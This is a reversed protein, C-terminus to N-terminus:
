KNTQQNNIVSITPDDRVWASYMQSFPTPLRTLIRWPVFPSSNSSTTTLNHVIKIISNVKLSWVNTSLAFSSFSLQKWHQTCLLYSEDDVKSMSPLCSPDFDVLWLGSSHGKSSTAWKSRLPMFCVGVHMPQSQSMEFLMDFSSTSLYGSHPTDFPRQSCALM